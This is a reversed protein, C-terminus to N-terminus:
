SLPGEDTASQRLGRDVAIREALDAARRWERTADDAPLVVLSATAPVTPADGARELRVTHEGAPLGPVGTLRIGEAVVEGDVSWRLEADDVPEGAADVVLGVLSFPEDAAVRADAAPSIIVARAPAGDIRFPDSVASSSRVGDTAVVVVHSEDGGPLHGIDIDVTTGGQDVALTFARSRGAFLAVNYTLPLPHTATWRARLRTGALDVEAIEVRPQAPHIPTRNLERGLETDVVVVDAATGDFPLYATLELRQTPAWPGCGDEGTSMRAQALPRGSGDLLKAVFPGDDGARYVVHRTEWGPRAEYRGDPHLVGAVRLYVTEPMLHDGEAQELEYRQDV